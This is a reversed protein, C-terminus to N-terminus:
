LIFQPLPFCLEPVLTLEEISMLNKGALPSEAPGGHIGWALPDETHWGNADGFPISDDDAWGGDTRKSSDNHISSHHLSRVNYHSKAICKSHLGLVPRSWSSRSLQRGTVVIRSLMLRDLILTLFTVQNTGRKM